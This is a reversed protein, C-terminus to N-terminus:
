HGQTSLDATVRSALPSAAWAAVLAAPHAYIAVAGALADYSWGGSTFAILDVSAARTAQLDYPTDGLMVVRSRDVDVKRLAAEISAPDPKSAAVESSSTRLECLDALGTQGLVAELEDAQAASALVYQYGERRLQLLLERAGLLPKVHRLWRERFLKSRREAFRKDHRGTVLEIVRDGGMGILRLVREADIEVGREAFAEAWAHAHAVNSDVLTGDVDLLVAQYRRM